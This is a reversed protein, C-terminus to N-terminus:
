VRGRILLFLFFPGGLLATLIGVPMEAPALLSRALTDCAVLFLGGAPFVWAGLRAHTPGLLLRLIHPVMMGVFAIPGCVAVVAGVILASTGLVVRRVRRLNVGRSAALEEGTCLLDLERHHLLLVVSGGLVLLATFILQVTGPATISGMLWRLLRFTQTYDALYQALMVLSGCIFNLAVGALLLSHQTLGGAARGVLLVLGMTALAGGMAGAVSLGGALGVGLGFLTVMAAGLSAGSALGLTYPTALPNRFLAQYVMGAVALGGGALFALLVRPLRLHLLIMQEYGTSQWFAPSIWPVGASVALLLLFPLLVYLLVLPLRQSM